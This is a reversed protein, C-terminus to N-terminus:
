EGEGRALAGGGTRLSSIGGHSGHVQAREDPTEVLGAALRQLGGGAQAEGARVVVDLDLVPEHLEDLGLARVQLEDRLVVARVRSAERGVQKEIVSQDCALGAIVQGGNRGSAGWGVQRAELLVVSYGRDALEIAASLGALGGGVIAVDADVNAQLSPYASGRAATAAYYSNKTLQQDTRLLSM